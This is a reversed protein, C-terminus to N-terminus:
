LIYVHLMVYYMAMIVKDQDAKLMREYEADQIELITRDSEVKSMVNQLDFHAIYVDYSTCSNVKPKRLLPSFPLSDDDSPIFIPQIQQPVYLVCFICLVVYM